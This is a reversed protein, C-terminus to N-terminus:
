FPGEVQIIKGEGPIDFPIYAETEWDWMLWDLSADELTKDFTMGVEWPRGDATLSHIMVRMGPLNVIEGLFMQQNDDRFFADGYRYSYAIHALPFPKHENDFDIQTPLLFGAEPKLIITRSDTRSIEIRTHASALIRLHEPNPQDLVQRLRLLYLSQGPSPSNLIILDKGEIDPLSGLNMMGPMPDAVFRVTSAMIPYVFGHLCLLVIAVVYSYTKWRPTFLTQHEQNLRRAIFQALLANAGISVILLHRGSALSIGCIPIVSLLLGLGWYRASRNQKIIPFILLGVMVLILVALIWFGIQGITSFGAYLIPDPLIWQGVLLIPVQEIINFLFRLPERLPDLYFGSGFSGYGLGNYVLRWVVVVLLYPIIRYLRDKWAGSDIVLMSAALYGFIAVGAEASFLALGLFLPGLLNGAKWQDRSSKDHAWISLIGFFTAILQSRGAISYIANVHPINLAFLLIALGSPTNRGMLRRYYVGMMACIALYWILNHAHMFTPNDPWLEYDLWFTLVALPRFFKVQTTELTWWPLSGLDMQVRTTAPDIFVYLNKIAEPLSSTLLISRQFIDDEVGWGRWLAPASIIVALLLALLILFKGAFLKNLNLMPDKKLKLSEIRGIKERDETM